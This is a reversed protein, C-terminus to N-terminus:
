LLMAIIEDVSTAGRFAVAVISVVIVYAFIAFLFIGIIRNVYGSFRSFIKIWLVIAAAVTVAILWTNM